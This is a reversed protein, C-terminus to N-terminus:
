RILDAEDRGQFSSKVQVSRHALPNAARVTAELPRRAAPHRDLDAAALHQTHPDAAAEHVPCARRGMRQQAKVARRQVRAVQAEENQLVLSLPISRQAYM